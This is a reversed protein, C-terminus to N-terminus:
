IKRLFFIAQDGRHESNLAVSRRTYEKMSAKSFYDSLRPRATELPINRRYLESGWFQFAFSDYEVDEVRFGSREAAIRFSKESHVCLHRPPDLQVWDTGYERWAWSAVPIRVVCVGDTTLRARVQKLAGVHDAIHELSHNFTICDFSESVDELGCRRVAVGKADAVEPAYEDIGLARFGASRLALVLRGGGCGVDLIRMAPTLRLAHVLRAIAFRNLPAALNLLTRHKIALSALSQRLQAKIGNGIRSRFPDYERPYHRGLDAPVDAIRLCGCRLCELYAFQERTGFMMERAFHHKSQNSACLECPRIAVQPASQRNGPAGPGVNLQSEAMLENHQGPYTAPQSAM